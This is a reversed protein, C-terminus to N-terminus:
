REIKLESLTSRMIICICRSLFVDGMKVTGVIQCNPVMCILFIVMAVGIEVFESLQFLKQCSLVPPYNHVHDKAFFFVLSLHSRFIIGFCCCKM